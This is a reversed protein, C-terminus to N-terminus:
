NKVTLDVYYNGFEDQKVEGDNTQNWVGDSPWSTPTETIVSPNARIMLANPPVTDEFEVTFHLTANNDFAEVYTAPTFSESGAGWTYLYSVAGDNNWWSVDAGNNKLWINLVKASSDGGSGGGEGGGSGGDGNVLVLIASRAPLSSTTAGRYSCITTGSLSCSVASDGYNIALAYKQDGLTRVIKAAFQGTGIPEVDMYGKILASSSQKANAFKALANYHSDTDSIQEEASKVISTKNINDWEVPYEAGTVSYGTTYSGDGIQGNATWKMPQRYALDSYGSDATVGDPFNGTMGLEDGYYIWTLGPLMLETIEVVTSLEDFYNYMSSTVTGQATLGNDDFATGAVRNICRAIDHNSTFAGNIMSYGNTTNADSGGTRYKNNTNLVSKINWEDGYKISATSGTLSSDSSASYPTSGSWAGLKSALWFNGSGKKVDAAVSTLNFYSYFDFLSDFGEYFPAVHYAHGDFNEGVFFANPYEQKVVYNLEKWFNLNKTLDSSYDIGSDTDSIYTDSSNYDIEDKLFIHKVADMRFGDVGFECWNLAMTEVATRTDAYAYNLEPMSSGFKAYYSYCHSGYPYWYKTENINSSQTEHNGWQYYGRTAEDLQASSIFWKNTTSTHNLVLDMVVLMGREHAADLLSKYDAKATAETVKGNNAVGAPSVKSGFKSDVSLYDSIDYGHYSDSSQIPTLWLVKVGLTELYDLKQEIGYIDGKGDGDSDAFSSVMIQYGVGAENLFKSSTSQISKDTWNANSYANNGYTVNTGDDKAFPDSLDAGTFEEVTMAESSNVNDQVVYIHYSYSGDKNQFKFDELTYYQNGGDNVWFGSGSLRTSSQVIQLGVKIDETVEGNPLFKTNTGGMTKAANNWGGDYTKTLDIDTSAYKYADVKATGSASLRDPSTVRGM